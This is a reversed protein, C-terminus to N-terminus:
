AGLDRLAGAATARVALDPDTAATALLLPVARADRLVVLGQAAQRRLVPDSAELAYQLHGFAGKRGIAQLGAGASVQENGRWEALCRILHPVARRDGLRGLLLAAQRRAEDDLSGLMAVLPEFAAAPRIRDLKRVSQLRVVPDPSELGAVLASAADPAVAPPPNAIGNIFAALSTALVERGHAETRDVFLVRGKGMQEVAYLNGSPDELIPFWAPDFFEAAPLGTASAGKAALSLEFERSRLAEDLSTFRGDPVLEAPPGSGEAGDHWRYLAIM